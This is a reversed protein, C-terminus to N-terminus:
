DDDADEDNELVRESEQEKASKSLTPFAQFGRQKLETVLVSKIKKSVVLKNDIIM